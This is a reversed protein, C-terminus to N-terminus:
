HCSLESVKWDEPRGAADGVFISDSLKLPVSSDEAELFEVMGLAPQMLLLSLLLHKVSRM